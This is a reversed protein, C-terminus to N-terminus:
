WCMMSPWFVVTGWYWTNVRPGRGSIQWPPVLQDHMISLTNPNSSFLSLYAKESNWFIEREFSLAFRKEHFHSKNVHSNFIMASLREKFCFSQAVRFHSIGMGVGPYMRHCIGWLPFIGSPHGPLHACISVKSLRRWHVKFKRVVTVTSQRHRSSEKTTM